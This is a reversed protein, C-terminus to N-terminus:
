AAHGAPAPQRAALAADPEVGALNAFGDIFSVLAVMTFAEALEGPSWGAGLAVAWTADTVSGANTAAEGVLPLLAGIGPELEHGWRSPDRIVEIEGPTWGARAAIRDNIAPSYRGGLAQGASLAIASRVKADLTAHRAIAERLALYAELALPSEAMAAWIDLVFPIDPSAELVRQLVPRSAAPATDITHLPFRAM